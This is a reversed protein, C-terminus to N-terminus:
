WSEGGDTSYQVEYGSANAVAGWQINHRNAGYSVYIGRTGTSITPAALQEGGGDIISASVVDAAPAAYNSASAGSLTYSVTVDYDGVEASPFAADAAVTVDDGAIIGEVTGLTVTAATTGDYTKDAVTTGTVTLAKATITVAASGNFEQYGERQAKVYVTYSGADAFSVVDAGYTEGDASYTVVDGAEVGSVTISHAAADYVGTYATLELEFTPAPEPQNEYCGLDQATGYVRVYPENRVDYASTYEAPPVPATDSLANLAQSPNTGDWLTYDGNAEDKFVKNRALWSICNEYNYDAGKIGSSNYLTDYMNFTSYDGNYSDNNTKAETGSNKSYNHYLIGGVFNVTAAGTTTDDVQRDRDSDEIGISFIGGGWTASDTNYGDYDVCAATNNTVTCYYADLVPQNRRRSLYDRTTGNYIGAGTIYGTMNVSRNGADFSNGAILDNVLLTRGSSYIGGGQCWGNNETDSDGLTNGTIKSNAVVLKYNEFLYDSRGFYYIGGGCQDIACGVIFNGSIETRLFEGAAGDLLCVGGGRGYGYGWENHNRQYTESTLRNGSIMSDAASVSSSKGVYIGGGQLITLSSQEGVHRVANELVNVNDLTLTSYLIGAIGGGGISTYSGGTDKFSDNSVELTNDSVTLNSLTLNVDQLALIGAGGSFKQTSMTEGGTFNVGDISVNIGYATDHPPCEQVHDDLYYNGQINMQYTYSRLLLVRSDGDADITINDGVINLDSTIALQGNTLSITGGALGDAFTITPAADFSGISAYAIAERLSVAGDASDVTDNLTTVVLYDDFGEGTYEVANAGAGAYAAIGDAKITLDLADFDLNGDADFVPAGVFFDGKVSVFSNTSEIKTFSNDVGVGGAGDWQLIGGDYVAATYDTYIDATAEDTSVNYAIISNTITTNSIWFEDTWADDSGGVAFFE